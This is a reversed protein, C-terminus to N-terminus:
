YLIRPFSHRTTYTFNGHHDFARDNSSYMDKLQSATEYYAQAALIYHVSSRWCVQIHMEKLSAMAKELQAEDWVKGIDASPVPNSQKTQGNTNQSGKLNSGLLHKQVGNPQAM